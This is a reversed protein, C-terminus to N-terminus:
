FRWSDEFMIFVCQFLISTIAWVTCYNCKSAFTASGGAVNFTKRGWIHNVLNHYLSSSDATRKQNCSFHL